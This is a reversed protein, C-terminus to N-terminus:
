ALRPSPVPSSALRPSACRPSARRPSPLVQILVAMLLQVHPMGVQALGSCRRAAAALKAYARQSHGERGAESRTPRKGRGHM